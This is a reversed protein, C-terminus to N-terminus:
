LLGPNEVHHEALVMVPSIIDGLVAIDICILAIVSQQAQKASLFIFRAQIGASWCALM